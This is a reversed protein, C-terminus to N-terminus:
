LFDEALNNEVLFRRLVKIYLIETKDLITEIEIRNM